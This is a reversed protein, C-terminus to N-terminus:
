VLLLFSLNWVPAEKRKWCWPWRRSANLVFGAVTESSVVRSYDSDRPCIRHLRILLSLSIAGFYLYIQYWVLIWDWLSAFRLFHRPIKLKIDSCIRGKSYMAGRHLASVQQVSDKIIKVCLHVLIFCPLSTKPVRRCCCNDMCYDQLIWISSM